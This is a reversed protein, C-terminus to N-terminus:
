AQAARRAVIYASGMVAGANRAYFRVPSIWGIEARTRGDARMDHLAALLLPVGVRGGILDPRVAIPGLWGKRTVDWACFGALGHEDRSIRLRDKELARLVEARWGSWHKDMWDSIEDRESPLARESGVPVPPLDLLDVDMNLNTEARQYGRAELLCHMSTLPAPVGPFLYDPADAGVTITGHGALDSEAARMLDHGVGRRQHDPHVAVLRIFAQDNRVASAIVGVDPDGRVIVPNAPTFLSEGLEEEDPAWPGLAAACLAALRPLADPGLETVSNM